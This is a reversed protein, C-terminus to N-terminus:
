KRVRRSEFDREGAMESLRRAHKRWADRIAEHMPRGDAGKWPLTKPNLGVFHAGCRGLHHQHMPFASCITVDENSVLVVNKEALAAVQLGQEDLESRLKIRTRRLVRKLVREYNFHPPLGRLGSNISRAECLESFQGYARHLDEAMVVTQSDGSALWIKMVDPVRWLIVDNDLAIEYSDPFLRVPALKWAVGEAMERDTQEPLWRPLLPKADVWEVGHPLEGTRRRAEDTGITNVCVAFRTGKPFLNFAFLVSFRLAEFGYDSVDGITWRLAVQNNRTTM